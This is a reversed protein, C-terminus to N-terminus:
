MTITNTSLTVKTSDALTAMMAYAAPEAMSIIYNTSETSTDKKPHALIYSGYPVQKLTTSNQIHTTKLERISSLFPETTTKAQQLALQLYGSTCGINTDSM